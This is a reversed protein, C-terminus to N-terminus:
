KRGFVDQLNPLDPHPNLSALSAEFYGILDKEYYISLSTKARTVATYTMNRNFKFKNLYNCGAMHLSRVELGKIGHFTSMLIPKDPQLPEHESGFQPTVRHGFPSKSIISWLQLLEERRPCVIGILDNPYAKLQADLKQIIRRAQDEIDQCNFHEVSSPNADEDYNSTEALRDYDGTDKAIGDAVKCIKLGNRYHYKLRTPNGLIANLTDLPSAGQYIKQREDAVVFLKRALKEFLQIEEPLYDQAEDLLICDYIKSLRRQKILDNAQDLLYKRREEFEEPPEISVGYQRLLDQQWRQCTQVKQTPFSYKEGGSSIFEQLTRTFVIILINKEGALYMYNARLLLLNTKGSGPPGVVWNSKGIPLTIVARQYPDLDDQGVWWASSM